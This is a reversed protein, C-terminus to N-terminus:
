TEQFLIRPLSKTLDTFSSFLGLQLHQETSLVNQSITRITIIHNLVKYLFGDCVTNIDDTDEVTQIVKTVQLGCYLCGVFLASMSLDCKGICQSISICKLIPGRHCFLDFFHSCIRDTDFIHCSKEKRVFCGLQNSCQFLGNLDRDLQMSM